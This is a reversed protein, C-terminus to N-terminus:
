ASYDSHQIRARSHAPVNLTTLIPEVGVKNFIMVGKIPKGSNRMASLSKMDKWITLISWLENDQLDSTLFTEIIGPDLEMLAASYASKLTSQMEVPVHGELVTIVM